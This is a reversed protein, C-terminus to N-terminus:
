KTRGGSSSDEGDTNSGFATNIGMMDCRRCAASVLLENSFQEINLWIQLDLPEHCDKLM